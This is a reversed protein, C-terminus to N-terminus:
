RSPSRARCRRARGRSRPRRELGPHVRRREAAGPPRYQQLLLRALEHVRQVRVVVDSPRGPVQEGGSVQERVAVRGKREVRPRVESQGPVARCQPQEDFPLWTAVRVSVPVSTLLVPARRKPPLPTQGSHNAPRSSSIRTYSRASVCVSSCASMSAGTAPAPTALAVAAARELAAPISERDRRFAARRARSPALRARM